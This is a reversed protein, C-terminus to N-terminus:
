LAHLFIANQSLHLKKETDSYDSNLFMFFYIYLFFSSKRKNAVLIEKWFIASKGVAVTVSTVATHIDTDTEIYLVKDTHIYTHIYFIFIYQITYLFLEIQLIDWQLCCAYKIPFTQLIYRWFLICHLCSLCCKSPPQM